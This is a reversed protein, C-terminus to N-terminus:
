LTCTPVSGESGLAAASLISWDMWMVHSHRVDCTFTECWRKGAFTERMSVHSADFNFTTPKIACTRLQHRDASGSWSYHTSIGPKFDETRSRQMEKSGGSHGLEAPFFSFVLQYPTSDRVFQPDSGTWFSFSFKSHWWARHPQQSQKVGFGSHDWQAVSCDFPLHTIGALWIIDQLVDSLRLFAFCQRHNRWSLQRHM